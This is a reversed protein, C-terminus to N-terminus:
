PESPVCDTAYGDVEPGEEDPNLLRGHLHGHREPDDRRIPRLLHAPPELGAARIEAVAARRFAERVAWANEGPDYAQLPADLTITLPPPIWDRM